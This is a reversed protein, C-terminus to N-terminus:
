SPFDVIEGSPPAGTAYSTAAVLPRRGPSEARPTNAGGVGGLIIEVRLTGMRTRFAIRVARNAAAPTATTASSAWANPRRLFAADEHPPHPPPYELPYPPPYPACAM